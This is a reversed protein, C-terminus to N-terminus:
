LGGSALHLPTAKAKTWSVLLTSSTLFANLAAVVNPSAIHMLLSFIITASSMVCDLNIYQFACLANLVIM